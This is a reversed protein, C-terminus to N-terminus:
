KGAGKAAARTADSWEIVWDPVVRDEPAPGFIDRLDADVLGGGSRKLARLRVIAHAYVEDGAGGPTTSDGSGPVVFIQEVFTGHATAGLFRTRIEYHQGPLLSRRYNVTLAAVVFYAKRRKLRDHLGSRVLQEIRGLDLVTPYRGNNMHGLLDLDNPLVRMPKVHMDWPGIRPLMRGRIWTIILRLYLNM